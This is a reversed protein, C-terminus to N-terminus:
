TKQFTLVEIMDTLPTKNRKATNNLVAMGTAQAKQMHRAAYAVHYLAYGAQRWARRVEETLLLVKGKKVDTYNGMLVTCLGKSKQAQSCNRAITHLASIYGKLDMNALDQPDNSYAKYSMGWYPPDIFIYDAYKVPFRTLLDHQKIKKNRPRLDYMALKFNASYEGLWRKRDAYVKAAMGSGAMPDIVIDNDKVFYWFCNAYIEGPIYGIGLELDPQYVVNAFNWNDTPKIIPSFQAHNSDWLKRVASPSIPVGDARGSKVKRVAFQLYKTSPKRRLADLWYQEKDLTERTEHDALNILESLQSYRKLHAKSYGSESAIDRLQQLSKASKGNSGVIIKLAKGIAKAKWQYFKNKEEELSRAYRLLATADNNSAIFADAISLSENNRVQSRRISNTSM